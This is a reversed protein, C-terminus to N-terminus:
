PATERRLITIASAGRCMLRPLRRVPLRSASVYRKIALSALAGGARQSM